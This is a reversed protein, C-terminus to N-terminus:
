VQELLTETSRKKVDDPFVKFVVLFMLVGTLNFVLFAELYHERTLFLFTALNEICSSLIFSQQFLSSYVLGQLPEFVGFCLFDNILFQGSNIFRLFVGGVWYFYGSIYGM